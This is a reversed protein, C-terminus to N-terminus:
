INWTGSEVIDILEGITLAEIDIQPRDKMIFKIYFLPTLISPFGKQAKYRSFDQRPIHIQFVRVVEDIFIEFREDEHKAEWNIDSVLDLSDSLESEPTETFDTIFKYVDGRKSM